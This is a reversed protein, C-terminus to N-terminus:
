RLLSYAGVNEAPVNAHPFQNNPIPSAHGDAFVANSVTNSFTITVGNVTATFRDGPHRYGIRRNQEGLRTNSQRGMYMGDTAVILASPRSLTPGGKVPMLNGNAYPGYGVSQTYYPCAPVTAGAAPPNDIRHFANLFYSCRIERQYLGNGDGFGAIPLAVDQKPSSDGGGIFQTPWDQYGQPRDQDFGTEGAAMGGIDLTSPCYFINTTLGNSGPVVGDRDLIAAWGDLVDGAAVITGATHMNLSPVVYDNNLQEYVVLGQGIGHLNALCRAAKANERAKALSPILIAILVAIIAIVVLLEILTFAQQTPPGARAPARSASPVPPRATM